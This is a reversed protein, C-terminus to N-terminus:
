QRTATFQEPLSEFVSAITELVANHEASLLAHVKRPDTEAAVPSAIRDAIQQISRRLSEFTDRAASLVRDAEFAKGIALEYGLKKQKADYVAAVIKAETLRNGTSTDKTPAQAEERMAQTFAGGGGAGGRTRDISAALAKDSAEADIKGDPGVVLRGAQAWRNVLSVNCGRHKAYARQSLGESM